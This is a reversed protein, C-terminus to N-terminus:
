YSKCRHFDVKPKLQWVDVGDELLPLWASRVYGYVHKNKEVVNKGVYEYDLLESSCFPCLMKRVEYTVKLCRYSCNGWWTVVHQRSRVVNVLLVESM